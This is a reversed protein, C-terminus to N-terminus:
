EEPLRAAILFVVPRSGAYAADVAPPIVSEDGDRVLVHYDVGLAELVPIAVRVIHMPSEKPPIAADGGQLGVLMCVPHGYDVAISRIANVSDYMGTQQMLLMGRRGCYSLAACISVGEDEKCLRIHRLGPDRSLPWLLGESTTIDPVTVAFEIGSDKIAALIRSGLLPGSERALEVM